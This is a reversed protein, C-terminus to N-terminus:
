MELVVRGAKGSRVMDLAANIQTLSYRHTILEDLKLKGSKYLQIYKPIDITPNTLGGQSDIMTKGCYNRRMNNLILAQDHRPQGVLIMKGGPVVMNYGAEIMHPLGTCDAVVDFKGYLSSLDNCTDNNILQNAGLKAAMELKHEQIDLAAIEGASVMKAGQIINLGVGGCGIVAISQGIKLRAENNILGLGTTIGCGLLAAIDFPIDKDIPTLRNESVIAYETFTTVLGGGASKDKWKYKPFNSEIGIGKRWHMVVHDGPKVHRVGPGVEKVIGGGEHGLLRPLRKDPGKAGSIQGVQAGCIGSAKIQVLVQGVDLCRITEIDDVVLPANLQELIAAKFKM